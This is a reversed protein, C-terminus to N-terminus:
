FTTSPTNCGWLTLTAEATDDIINIMRIPPIENGSRGEAIRFLICVIEIQARLLLSTTSCRKARHFDMEVLVAFDSSHEEDSLNIHRSRAGHLKLGSM